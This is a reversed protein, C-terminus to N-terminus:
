SPRTGLTVTLTETEGDRVYTVELEDGPKKGDIVASLDDGDTITKGDLKTIVDGTELGAGAAPTGSFVDALLAGPPSTSTSVNIGLYAHEVTGGAVITTAVSRITNSPVAFGVGDNGGSDSQIQTNVGIVRGFVDILPGGSNGHNIPADTQIAGGITFNNPATMSRDLSSVIGSTVTGALGFPSGIAVVPDGIEVADSDGLSLPHLISAPADVKIVALDTSPDDSVLTADYTKGDSFTVQISGGADVVHQNTVVHGQKDYVFGSGGARQSRGFVDSGGSSTVTVDVVGQRTREYIENVTLAGETAAAEASRDVSLVTTTTSSSDDLAAFLGAGVGVGAAAIGFAAAAILAVRGPRNM